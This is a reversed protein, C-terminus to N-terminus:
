DGADAGVGEDAAEKDFVPNGDAGLENSGNAYWPHTPYFQPDVPPASVRREWLNDFAFHSASSATQSPTAPPATPAAAPVPRLKPAARSM